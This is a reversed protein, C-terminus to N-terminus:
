KKQTNKSGSIICVWFKGFPITYIFQEYVFNSVKLIQIGKCRAVTPLSMNTDIGINCLNAVLDGAIINAMEGVFDGMDPSEFDIEFGAFKLVLPTVTERPLGLMLSWTAEEGLLSITGVVIDSTENQETIKTFVPETGCFSLFNKKLANHFCDLIKPNNNDQM